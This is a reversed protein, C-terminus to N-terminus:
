STYLKFNRRSIQNKIFISSSTVKDYLLAAVANASKVGSIESAFKVQHHFFTTFLKTAVLGFANIYVNFFPEEEEPKENSVFNQIISDYFYIQLYELINKIINLITLIIIKIYYTKLISKFFLNKKKKLNEENFKKKEIYWKESLPKLLNQSHDEEGVGNFDPIKLPRKNALKM